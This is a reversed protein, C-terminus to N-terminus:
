DAARQDPKPAPLLEHCTRRPTRDHWRRHVPRYYVCPRSRNRAQAPRKLVAVARQGGLSHGVIHLPRGARVIEEAKKMIERHQGSNFVTVPEGLRPLAEAIQLLGPNLDNLRASSGGPGSSPSGGFIILTDLAFSDIANTPANGVYAYRNAGLRLVLDQGLFRHLAPGYYRARYYYLGTGDNERGSFHFANGSAAGETTTDGFPEYVYRTALTGAADTLGLISGLGDSLYHYSAAEGDERIVRVLRGLEDYLYRIDAFAPTAFSLLLAGLLAAIGSALAISRCSVSRAV